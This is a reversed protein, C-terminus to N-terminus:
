EKTFITNRGGQKLILQKKTTDFEAIIGAATFEFVNPVTPTVPFASQGTAQLMLTTDDKTATIKLPVGPNAYVGLYKDLDQSSLKVTGANKTFVDTRGHQAITMQKKDADFEMVIGSPSNEFINPATAKLPFAGQGTARATLTNDHKSVTLMLPTTPSTYEGLFKDLDESKIAVTKFNPITYPKNFYIGIAGQIIDGAADDDANHIYCIAMEDAPFYIAQSGFSDIGGTHGFGAKGIIPYRFMGMGYGEKITQMLAVHEKSIIKGAFLAEIFHDLDTPTSVMAGAGAPISMDTEADAQWPYTGKYSLAEHKAYPDIKGGYYTDKLGIKDAIRKKVLQPYPAKALKEAIYGLLVFNTNSYSAKTDPEFDSPQGAFIALMEDHSKPQTNYNLYAADNTFNHLGSRHQLMMGITIKSANALQPFFNSLKTDLTLKGEEVLQFIICTTFMKSISGIRYKTEVTALVKESGYSAYGIARGYVVKGNHTIALSGMGKHNADVADLLSDIKAVNFNQAHISSIFLLLTICLLPIKKFKM